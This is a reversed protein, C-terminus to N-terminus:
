KLGIMEVLEYMIIVHNEELIIKVKVNYLHIVYM